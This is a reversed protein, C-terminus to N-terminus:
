LHRRMPAVISFFNLLVVNTQMACAHQWGVGGCERDKGNAALECM